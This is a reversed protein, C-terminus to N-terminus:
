SGGRAVMAIEVLADPSVLEAGILTRSPRTGILEDLLENVSPAHLIHPVFVYVANVSNFDTQAAALTARLNALTQRTQEEVDGKALGGPGSGIAGATFVRDSVKIAPSFPGGPPTADKAMVASRDTGRQAICQIEVGFAPNM